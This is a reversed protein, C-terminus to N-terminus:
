NWISLYWPHVIVWLYKFSEVVRIKFTILPVTPGENAPDLPLLFLKEWNIRFGSFNGFTSILYILSILSQQTDGLYHLTNDVYLSIKDEGTGRKFGIINSAQRIAVALPEVALASLLLSLPCGQQM